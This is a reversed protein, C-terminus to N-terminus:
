SCTRFPGDCPVRGSDVLQHDTGLRPHFKGQYHVLGDDRYNLRRLSVVPREMYSLLREIGPRDDADLKRDSNVAFGSHEWALFREVTEPLIKEKQLMMEFFRERFLEELGSFDVDDM